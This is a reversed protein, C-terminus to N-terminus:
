GPLTPKYDVENNSINKAMAVRFSKEKIPGYSIVAPNAHRADKKNRWILRCYGGRERLWSYLSLTPVLVTINLPTIRECAYFKTSEAPAHPNEIAWLDTLYCLTFKKLECNVFLSM